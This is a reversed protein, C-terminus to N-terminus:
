GGKKALEQVLTEYALQGAADDDMGGDVSAIAEREDFVDLLDQRLDQGEVKRIVAEAQARWRRRPDALLTMIEAKACRAEELLTPPVRAAPRLSLFDGKIAASVGLRHLEILLEAPALSTKLTV